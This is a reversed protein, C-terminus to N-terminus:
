KRVVHRMHWDLAAPAAVLAKARAEEISKGVYAKLPENAPESLVLIPVHISRGSDVGFLGRDFAWHHRRCLALGNRADDCGRLAHPVVHAAEIEFAGGPARLGTRCVCCKGEYLDYIRQRFVLSRALRTVNLTQGSPSSDFMAFPKDERESQERQADDYDNEAMPADKGLVGWRSRGAQSNIVAFDASGQRILTLRFVHLDILSRQFVLIDDATALKRLGSLNDTLRSEASREGGWSQYQYRTDVHGLFVTGDYLSAWIRRDLTPTSASTRGLLGPFFRRL